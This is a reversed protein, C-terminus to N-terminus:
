SRQGSGGGKGDGDANGIGNSQRSYYTLLDKEATPYAEFAQIVRLASMTQPDHRGMPLDRYGAM